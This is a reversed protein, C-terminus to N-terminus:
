LELEKRAEGGQTEKGAAGCWGSLSRGYGDAVALVAVCQWHNVHYGALQVDRKPVAFDFRGDAASIARVQPLVEKAPFDYREKAPFDLLYVKAGVVPKGEPDVV